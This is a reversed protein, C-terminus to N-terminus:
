VAGVMDWTIGEGDGIDRSAKRGYVISAFKPEIGPSLAKETRLAAINGPDFRTGAAIPRAAHLSRNTRDYISRESPSLKKVGNGAIAAVYDSGKYEIIESIAKEPDRAAQDISARMHAFAEPELAIPDDLGSDDRSLCFHKEVAFAGLAISLTPIVTPDMSHDSVGIPVGFIRSLNPILTLNYDAEPAPYATVCHLLSSAGTFFGLAFEIDSMTSVGTSLITPANRAAVERLLDVHNIEPSAIKWVSVGLGYLEKASRIGFPTCLFLAGKSEVLDRMEAFFDIPMELSRFRDFLSVPGGPLPVVGCAPHLIEEAYVHQFKVCNAGAEIAAHVLERAKGADGLHGTGLEAIVLPNKYSYSTGAVTFSYGSEQAFLSPVRCDM